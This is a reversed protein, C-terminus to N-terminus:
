TTPAQASMQYNILLCHFVWRQKQNVSLFHEAVMKINVVCRELNLPQLARLMIEALVMLM